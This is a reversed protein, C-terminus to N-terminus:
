LKWLFYYRRRKLVLFLVFTTAHLHIGKSSLMEAYDVTTLTVGIQKVCNSKKIYLSQSDEHRMKVLISSKLRSRGALQALYKTHLWARWSLRTVCQEHVYNGIERYVYRSRALRSRIRATVEALHPGGAFRALRAWTILWNNKLTYAHM